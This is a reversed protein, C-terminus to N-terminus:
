ALWAAAQPGAILFGARAASADLFEVDERIHYHELHERLRAALGPDADIALGADTRLITALAIVWGRPDTFFAECGTGAELRTIAATTFHDVFTVADRGHVLLCSRAPLAVGAAHDHLLTSVSPVPAPPAAPM